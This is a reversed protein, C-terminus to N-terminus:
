SEGTSSVSAPSLDARRFTWRVRTHPTASGTLVIQACRSAGQPAAFFISEEIAPTLGAAAFILRRGDPLTLGIRRGNELPAVVVRPHIHFRIVFDCAQAPEAGSAPRLRDEGILRAGDHTLALVREHVLGYDRVYGDHACELVEGSDSARRDVDIERPGSLICGEVWKELGEDLAFRCSSRDNLVLTSHAATARAMQRATEFQPPPAGCNVVVRQSEVSYEFALAGAHAAHSFEIPPPAGCDALVLAGGAQMRQYGAYPANLPASGPADEHSLITALLDLSTVGMGNFLGLSGDGHQLMRLMPIMRDIARMVAEPASLGRAAYVRRLPLLDLLLDLLTQPNRGIHGGDRTIQRELEHGLLRSARPLIAGASDACISFEALAIACLLREGGRAKGSAIFRSLSRVDAALGAMFREYFDADAGDLLLPSQALWSLTRRATVGPEFAPDDPETKRLVLFAGVYARAYDGALPDHDPRLHRLWSFGALSRRWAASPWDYEFPSRGPAQLTKGNFSFCGAFIEDAVTSDTTRIDTPAIRLRTPAGIAMSRFAHYPAVASQALAHAARVSALAAWRMRDKIREEGM